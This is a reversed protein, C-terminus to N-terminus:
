KTPKPQAHANYIARAYTTLRSKDQLTLRQKQIGIIFEDLSLKISTKCCPSIAANDSKTEQQFSKAVDAAKNIAQLITAPTQQAPQPTDAIEMRSVVAGNGQKAEGEKSNTGKKGTMAEETM